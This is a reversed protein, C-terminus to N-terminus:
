TVGVTERVKFESEIRSQDTNFQEFSNFADSPEANGTSSTIIVQKLGAQIEAQQQKSRRLEIRGDVNDIFEKQFDYVRTIFTAIM